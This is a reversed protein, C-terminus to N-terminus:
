RSLLVSMDQKVGSLNADSRLLSVPDVESPDPVVDFLGSFDGRDLVAYVHFSHLSKTTGDIRQYSVRFNKDINDGVLKYEEWKKLFTAQVAGATSQIYESVQNSTCVLNEKEDGVHSTLKPVVEEEEEEASEKDSDQERVDSLELTINEFGSIYMVLHVSLHLLFAKKM